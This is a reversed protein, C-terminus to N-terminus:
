RGVGLQVLRRTSVGGLLYEGPKRARVFMTLAGRGLGLRATPQMVITAWGTGDTQAEPANGILGYPLAIAYVLAGQVARGCTDTVRFRATFSSRSTLRAPSFQVGSLILRDPLGINAASLATGSANSSGCQPSPAAAAAVKATPASTSTATGNGNTARVQARLTNGVDATRVGYTSATAGAIDSCGAGNQDCRQWQYGFSTPSGNWTGKDATLQEGVVAKGTITPPNVSAPANAAGVPGEPDSYATGTGSASTATVAVQIMHGQDAAVLKYSSTTAGSITACGAGHSDCRLWRYGYSSVPPSATWTGTSVTLTKGIELQGSIVPRKTNVPASASAIPGVPSSNATASGSANRATVFSEIEHGVDASTLKYTDATAGPITTCGAGHADCRSWSYSYSDVGGTWTGNTTMLTQGEVMKGSITPATKNQPAASSQAAAGGAIVGLAVAAVGLAGAAVLKSLRTRM